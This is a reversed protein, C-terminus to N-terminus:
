GDECQDVRLVSLKEMGEMTAELVARLMSLKETGEM